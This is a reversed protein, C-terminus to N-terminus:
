RHYSSILPKIRIHVDTSKTAMLGTELVIDKVNQLEPIGPITVIVHDNTQFPKSVADCRPVASHQSEIPIAATTTTATKAPTEIPTPVSQPSVSPAVAVITVHPVTPLPAVVSTQRSRTQPVASHQSEIPFAAAKTTATISSTDIPTPV